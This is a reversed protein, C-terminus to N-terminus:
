PCLFHLQSWGTLYKDDSGQFSKSSNRYPHFLQASELFNIRQFTRRFLCFSIKALRGYCQRCSSSFSECIEFSVFICKKSSFQKKKMLFTETAFSLSKKLVSAFFTRWFGVSECSLNWFGRFFKHIKRFSFLKGGFTGVYIYFATKVVRGSKERCFESFKKSSNRFHHFASLIEQFGVQFITWRFMCLLIKVLRGYSQRCSYSFCEWIGCSIFICKKQVFNNKKWWFLNKLLPFHLKSLALLFKGRLIWLNAAWIGFVM